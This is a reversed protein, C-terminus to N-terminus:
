SIHSVLAKNIHASLLQVESCGFHQLPEGCYERGKIPARMSIEVKWGQLIGM